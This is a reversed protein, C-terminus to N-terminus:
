RPPTAHNGALPKLRAGLLTFGKFLEDRKGLSPIM